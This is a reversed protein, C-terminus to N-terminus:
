AKWRSFLFHPVLVSVILMALYFLGVAIAFFGFYSCILGAIIVVILGLTAQIEETKIGDNPDNFVWWLRAGGILLALGVVLLFVLFQGGTFKGPLDLVLVGCDSERAPRFLSSDIVVKVLILQSYVADDATIEWFVEKSEYPDFYSKYTEERVETSNIQTIQGTITRRATAPSDNKVTARVIGVEDTDILIPCTFPRISKEANIPFDFLSAEFDTYVSVGLIGLALLVGISFFLMGLGRFTNRHGRNSTVQNGGRNITFQQESSL